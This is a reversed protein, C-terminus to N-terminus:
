ERVETFIHCNERFSMFAVPAGEKGWWRDAAAQKDDDWHRACTNTACQASEACFSMDRYCIM